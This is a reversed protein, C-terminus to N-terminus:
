PCGANYSIMGIDEM